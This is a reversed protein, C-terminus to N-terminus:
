YWQHTNNKRTGVEPDWGKYKTITFLNQSSVYVRLRKVTGKTLSELIGSAPFNYGIMLNKVRLYSGDEIWRTSVRSNGNPDGSAARPISTNTHSPTWADLVQTGSNFLRIMGEVIVREANFIKIVRFVRSSFAQM